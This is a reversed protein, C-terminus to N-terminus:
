VAVSVLDVYLGGVSFIGMLQLKMAKQMQLGWIMPLPTFLIILDTLVNMGGM